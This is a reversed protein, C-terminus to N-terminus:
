AIYKEAYVAATAGDGAASVVQRISNARIDGAAFVGPIGTEMKENTVIAGGDDLTLIGKLYDTNPKFGISVFVGSVDISSKNGNILNRICISKVFLEGTIEEVASNWHFEIRPEAQIKERMVGTARLEGRRHILTIKSAFKTLALAETIAADGGGIVAVAKDKFFAGDCTACYSVGKGTFEVEGPVGLKQHESGGAIIVARASFDGAATSILKREGSFKVGAVAATETVMGFKTAQKYMLQTLDYGSIGDPFGPYNEVLEANVINGGIIGKELLVSRLRARSTYIGASLGAPGGGIIVVDVEKNKVSM